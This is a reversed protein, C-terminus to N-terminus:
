PTMSGPAATYGNQAIWRVARLKASRSRPNSQREEDDAVQPKGTLREVRDERQWQVFAQKVQRDELSHFSIVAAVGKPAMLRPLDALLRSLTQLEQNVAIRLAMFTRTAPDIRPAQRHRSSGRRGARGGYASRVVDALATTTLIPEVRRREVIKAAIKRSLREDGLQYILDALEKAPLQNVLDAATVELRDDLRM